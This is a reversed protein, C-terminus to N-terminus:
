VKLKSDILALLDEATFPKMLCRLKNEQFFQSMTEDLSSGTIFFFKKATQEKHQSVKEYLSRGDMKPLHYDCIIIDFDKEKMKSLAAEGDPVMDIDHGRPALIAQMFGAISQQDEVLLIQQPHDTERASLVPKKEAAKSSTKVDPVIPLNIIFSAGRGEESEARITGGHSQIVGYSLSLGIGTGKGVGKTTFFPEFIKNINKKSIGPGTDSLIVQLINGPKEQVLVTIKRSGTIQQLADRANVLINLFVQRLQHPDVQITPQPQPYQRAVEINWKKLEFQLVDFVEDILACPNVAERRPEHHRAFTLLDQVIQRCRQAERSIISLQSCVQEKAREKGKLEDNLMLHAYGLVATLPNNLEHAVGAVLRGISALKESEVLQNQTEQLRLNSEKLEAIKTELAQYLRANQIGHAVQSAFTSANRLDAASFNNTTKTRNLNLVGLVENQYILPCVISSRVRPNGEIGQFKPYNELGGIVLFDRKDRMAQGAVREGIRLHVNRVISDDIGLSAAINLKKEEDFLMLSGEDAHMIKQILDMVITLLVDLKVTTFIVKFSQYLAIEEREKQVLESTRQRVEEELTIRRSELSWVFLGSTVSFLTGMLLILNSALVRDFPQESNFYHDWVFFTSLLCVLFIVLSIRIRPRYDDKTAPADDKIAPLM